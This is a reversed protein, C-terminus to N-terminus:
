ARGGAVEEVAVRKGAVEEVAVGESAVDRGAVAAWWRVPSLYRDRSEPGDSSGM